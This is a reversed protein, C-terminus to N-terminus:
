VVSKGSLAETALAYVGPSLRILSVTRSLGPVDADTLTLPLAAGHNGADTVQMVNVGVQLPAVALRVSGSGAPSDYAWHAQQPLLNGGARRSALSLAPALAIGIALALTSAALTSRRSVNPRGLVVAAACAVLAGTSLPGTLPKWHRLLPIGAALALALGLLRPLPGSWTRLWLAYAWAGAFLGLGVSLALAAVFTIGGAGQLAPITRLTPILGLGLALSATTSARKALSAAILALLAAVLGDLGVGRLLVPKALANGALAGLPVGVVASTHLLAGIIAAVATGLAASRLVRVRSRGRVPIPRHSWVGDTLAGTLGQPLRDVPERAGSFAFAGIGVLSGILALLTCLGCRAPLRSQTPGGYAARLLSPPLPGGNWITFTSSGADAGSNWVVTYTGPQLRPVRVTLTNGAHQPPGNGLDTQAGSYVALRADRAPADPLHVSVTRPQATLVVGPTPQVVGIGAGVAGPAALTLLILPLLAFGGRRAARCIHLLWLSLLRM